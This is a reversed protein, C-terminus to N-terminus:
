VQFPNQSYAFMSDPFHCASMYMIMRGKQRERKRERGGEREREGEGQRGGDGKRAGALIYGCM